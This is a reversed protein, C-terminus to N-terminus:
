SLTHPKKWDAELAPISRINFVRSAKQPPENADSAEVTIEKDGAAITAGGIIGNVPDLRLGPPLSGHTIEWKLPPTGGSARMHLTCPDDVVCSDLATTTIELQSPQQACAAISGFLVAISIAKLMAECDVQFRIDSRKM